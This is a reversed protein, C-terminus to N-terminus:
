SERIAAICEIEISAGRPLAAVAVCARAPKHHSFYREYVGNVESFDSMDVLSINVKMVCSLDSGSAKLVAQLNDLAQATQEAVSAKTKDEGEPTLAIQGSCYVVGAYSVAQSYPGIAAPANPSQHINVQPMNEGLGLESRQEQNM